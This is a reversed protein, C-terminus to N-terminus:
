EMSSSSLAKKYWNCWHTTGECVIEPLQKLVNNGFCRHPKKSYTAKSKGICFKGHQYFVFFYKNNAIKRPAANNSQMLSLRTRRLCNASLLLQSTAAVNEACTNSAPVHTTDLPYVRAFQHPPQPCGKQEDTDGVGFADNAADCLTLRAIATV